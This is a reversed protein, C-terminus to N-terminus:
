GALRTSQHHSRHILMGGPSKFGIGCEPCRHEGGATGAAEAYMEQTMDHKRFCHFRFQQLYSTTYDCCPCQFNPRDAPQSQSKKAAKKRPVERQRGLVMVLDYFPQAFTEYCDPCLDIAYADNGEFTINYTSADIQGPEESNLHVDCLVVIKQVM